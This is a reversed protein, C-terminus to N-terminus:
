KRNGQYNLGHMFEKFIFEKSKVEFVVRCCYDFYDKEVEELPKGMLKSVVAKMITGHMIVLVNRGENDDVIKRLAPIARKAGDERSEGQPIRFGMRNTDRGKIVDPYREKAEEVNLGELIGFSVENLEPVRAKVEFGCAEAIIDATKMARNLASSYIVDIGDKKLREAMKKAHAIGKDSLRVNICGLYRDPDFQVEAHRMVILRM